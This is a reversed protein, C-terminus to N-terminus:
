GFEFLCFFSLRCARDRWRRQESEAGLKLHGKSRNPPMQRGDPLLSSDALLVFLRQQTSEDVFHHNVAQSTIPHLCANDPFTPFCGREDDGNGNSCELIKSPRLGHFSHNEFSASSSDQILGNCLFEGIQAIARGHTQDNQRAGDSPNPEFM